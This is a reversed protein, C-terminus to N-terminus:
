RIDYSFCLYFHYINHGSLFTGIRGWFIASVIGAITIGFPRLFRRLILYKEGPINHHISEYYITEQLIRTIDSKPEVSKKYFSFDLGKWKFFYKKVENPITFVIVISATLLLVWGYMAKFSLVFYVSFYLGYIISPFLILLNAIILESISTKYAERVLFVLFILLSVTIPLYIWESVSGILTFSMLEFFFLILSIGLPKFLELNPTIKIIRQNTSM